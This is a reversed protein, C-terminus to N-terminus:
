PKGKAIAAELQARAEADGKQSHERGALQILASQCALALEANVARLRNAEKAQEVLRAFNKANMEIASLDADTLPTM